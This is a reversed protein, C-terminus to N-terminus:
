ANMTVRDGTTCVATRARGQGAPRALAASAELLRTEPPLRDHATLGFAPGRDRSEHAGRRGAPRHATEAATLSAWGFRDGDAQLLSVDSGNARRSLLSEAATNVGPALRTALAERLLEHRFRLWPPDDVVLGANLLEEIAAALDGPGYGSLEALDNAAFSTGLASALEVVRRSDKSLPALLRELLSTPLICHAQRTPLLSTGTGEGTPSSRAEEVFDLAVLPNGGAGALKELLVSGPEAQLM